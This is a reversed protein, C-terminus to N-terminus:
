QKEETKSKDKKGFIKKFDKTEKLDRLDMYIKLTMGFADVSQVEPEHAFQHNWFIEYNIRKTVMLEVGFQTRLKDVQGNGFNGFYELFGYAIFRLYETRMDREVTIRPRYRLNFEENKFRWDFRNKATLLMNWPLYFRANAETVLMSEKFPDESSPPTASYQLGGRLWLFKGPLSDMRDPVRKQVFGPPFTFYDVFFGLAGDAYSSSEMRTVAATGYLRWKQNLRLYADISPWVEQANASIQAYGKHPAFFSSIMLSSFFILITQRFPRYIFAKKRERVHPLYKNEPQAQIVMNIWSMKM